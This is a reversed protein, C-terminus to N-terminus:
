NIRTSSTKAEIEEEGINCTDFVYIFASKIFINNSLSTYKHLFTDTSRVRNYFPEYLM